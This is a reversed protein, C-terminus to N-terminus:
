SLPDGSCTCYQTQWDFGHDVLVANGCEKGKVADRGIANVDVDREGDRTAIVTGAASAMVPVGQAMVKMDRIAFDTGKHGDYTHKGCAFDSVAPSPDHDVYNVIWCSEGLDCRVPLALFPPKTEDAQAPWFSLLACAVLLGHTFRVWERPGPRLGNPCEGSGRLCRGRPKM